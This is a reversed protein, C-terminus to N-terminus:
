KKSSAKAASKGKGKSKKKGTLLVHFVARTTAKRFFKHKTKNAPKALACSTHAEPSMVYKLAANMHAQLVLTNQMTSEYTAQLSQLQTQRVAQAQAHTWTHTHTLTHTLSDKAQSCANVLTRQTHEITDAHETHMAAGSVHQTQAAKHQRTFLIKAITPLTYKTVYLYLAGYFIALWTVQSLYTTIDLQPM